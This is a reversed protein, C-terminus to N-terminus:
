FFQRYQFLQYQQQQPPVNQIKRQKLPQLPHTLSYSQGTSHTSTIRPTRLLAPAIALQLKTPCPGTWYIWGIIACSSHFWCSQPSIYRIRLDWAAPPPLSTAIFTRSRINEATHARHPTSSVRGAVAGLILLCM